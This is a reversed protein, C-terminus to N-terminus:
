ARPRNAYRLRMYTIHFHANWLWNNASLGTIGATYGHASASGTTREMLSHELQDMRAQWYARSQRALEKRKQLDVDSALDVNTYDTEVVGPIVGVMPSPESLIVTGNIPGHWFRGSFTGATRQYPYMVGLAYASKAYITSVKLLQSKGHCRSQPAIEDWGLGWVDITGTQLLLDLQRIFFDDASAKKRHGIHVCNYEIRGLEGGGACWLEPYVPPGGVIWNNQPAGSASLLEKSPAIISYPRDAVSAVMGSMDNGVYQYIHIYGAMDLRQAEHEPIKHGRQFVLLDCPIVHTGCLVRYGLREYLRFMNMTVDFDFGSTGYILCLPKRSV